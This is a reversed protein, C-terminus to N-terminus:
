FEGEAPPEPAEGEPSSNRIEVYSSLVFGGTKKTGVEIKILPCGSSVTKCTSCAANAFDCDCGACDGGYIRISELYQTVTTWEGGNIKKVLRTSDAPDPKFIVWNGATIEGTAENIVPEYFLVKDENAFDSATITVWEPKVQRLMM